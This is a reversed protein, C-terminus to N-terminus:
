PIRSSPHPELPEAAAPPACPIRVEFATGAARAVVEITGGSATAIDRCLWLGLGTGRGAPKTTFWPEFIRARLAEPIGPGDDEVVVVLAGAEARAEVRVPGRGDTADAANELLNLLLHALGGAAGELAPLAEPIRAEIAVDRRSARFFRLADRLPAAPDFRAAPGYGPRALDRFARVTGDLRRACDVADRAADLLERPPPAAGGAAALGEVIVRLSSALCALPSAMEHAATAALQGARALPERRAAGDLATAASTEHADARRREDALAADDRARGLLVGAADALGLVLRMDGADLTRGCAVVAGAPLGRWCAPVAVAGPAGARGTRSAPMAATAARTALEREADPSSAGRSAWQGAVLRQVGGDGSFVLLDAGPIAAAAAATARRLAELPDPAAAFGLLDRLARAQALRAAGTMESTEQLRPLEDFLVGAALLPDIRALDDYV